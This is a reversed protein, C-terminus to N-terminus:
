SLEPSLKGVKELLVQNQIWGYTMVLGDQLSIKPKWGLKEGILRNDSKRGNVGIFGPIHNISLKKGSILIIMAALQNISVMEESGINVPGPFDSEMLKFVADICDDIYLFSRTQFGNGWIDVSGGDEAEAVKRCIAAPAKEKGGRWTGSPGFINHFRAVKCDIGFNKKFAFYLRESFLKEWGYESDPLAPYASSEECNPNEPDEQNFFPYICASSAFFIKPVSNNKAAFLINANCLLSNHMITADNVGDFIYGAGGMDAALQYIVDIGKTVLACFAPDRLDGTLKEDPVSDNFQQYVIDVSRVWQHQQKLRKILHGGIFGGGGCVLIRAM